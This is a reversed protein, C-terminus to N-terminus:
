LRTPKLLKKSCLFISSNYKFGFSHTRQFEEESTGIGLGMQCFMRPAMVREYGLIGYSVDGLILALGLQAVM